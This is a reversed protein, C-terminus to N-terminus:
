SAVYFAMVDHSLGITDDAVYIYCAMYLGLLKLQYPSPGFLYIFGHGVLSKPSTPHSVGWCEGGRALGNSEMSPAAM